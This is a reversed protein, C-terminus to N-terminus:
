RAISIRQSMVVGDVTLRIVYIGTALTSVDLQQRVSTGGVRVRQHRILQGTLSLVSVEATTQIPRILDAEVRLLGTSVPNPFVVFRTAGTPETALVLPLAPAQIRLNDIAWGWGTSVVDAFLRFRILVTEGPKFGSTGLLPITRRKFLAPLGGSTSNREGPLTGDVLNRNYQALWDAHNLANYGDAMPRWTLGNDNSGEAVAYDNFGAQGFRSGLQGPQVLAVEDFRIVASDPNAAIRIPILLTADTSSQRRFDSGNQYPHASHLAPDGFEPPQTVAFGSLAFDAAVTNVSNFDNTYRDRATQPAVVRIEYSGSVPNVAQNRNQSADRAVIRYTIRDGPKLSNAPITITNRYLSDYRVGGIITPAFNLPLNPQAAGNIQYEIVVSGIGTPRDDAITALIPLSDPRTPNLLLTRTPNHRIAPPVNDPGSLVRYFLQANSPTKGPSTFARGSADQASLYYWVEGQAQAAPLTYRYESLSGVLMLPVSTVATDTLTPRTKRYFLRPAAGSSVTDSVVRISFTLDTVRESSVLPEHLVSTTRWELDDLMSLLIPGPAHIADGEKQRPMMLRNDTHNEYFGQDLHYLSEARNFKNPAAIFPRQVGYRRRTKPADFYLNSSTLYEGLAASNDPLTTLSAVARWPLKDGANKAIFHDYASPLGATYQGLGNKVDFFGIVGLGHALEHLVATVLDYQYRLPKGDTGFYWDNNQNINAIIDPENDSNISRRAIKEALAIPYYGFGKQVGNSGARYTVPYASGLAGPEQSVWNAQIRIPVPSSIQTAWIDVAYQFAQRAETTFGKYEVIFQATAASLRGNPTRQSRLFVDPAPVHTNGPENSLYCTHTAGAPHILVPQQSFATRGSGCVVLLFLWFLASSRRYRM